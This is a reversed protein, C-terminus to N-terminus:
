AHAMNCHICARSNLDPDSDAQRELVTAAGWAWKQLWFWLVMACELSLIQLKHAIKLM